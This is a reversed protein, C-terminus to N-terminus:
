LGFQLDCGTLHKHRSDYALLFALFEALAAPETEMGSLLSQMQYDHAQQATWGRKAMVQEEIDKSMGTGRLKNPSVSFVCVDPSLERAMQKTIMLAAAKSANYALSCRMPVHAANSVINVVTGNRQRLSDLCRQTMNVMGWANIDMVEDWQEKTMEDIWAQRNVGACNVLVDIDDFDEDFVRVDCDPEINRDFRVVDLGQDELAEAIELGLGSAAGTVLATKEIM